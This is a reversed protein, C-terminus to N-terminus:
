GELTVRANPIPLGTEADLVEIRVGVTHPKESLNYITSDWVGAYWGKREVSSENGISSGYSFSTPNNIGADKAIIQSVAITGNLLGKGYDGKKLFPVVHDDLIQGVLEDPLIRMVGYGLEIRIKREKKTLLILVGKNVGKKGIGWYNYLEKAYTDYDSDGVTDVTAIVIATGTKQLIERSINKMMREEREPILSAFDNVAGRPKPFTTETYTSCGHFILILLESLIIIWFKRNM